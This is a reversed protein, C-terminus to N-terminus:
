ESRPKKITITLIGLLTLGGWVLILNGWGISSAANAFLINSGAAAVYSVFDLFGTAASVMGTDRLGPCYRSYLMTASGNSAMIALVLLILNIMPQRVFYVGVFLLTSTSFLVLITRDMNYHLREYLFISIFATFCIVFTAATFLRASTEASFGLHESIYTPLWFVVSTRVVGTIISILTFRIIRHRILIRLGGGQEKKTAYQRYRVIGRKEFIYFFTFSIVAMLVLLASSIGFVSQWTFAAAMVGAMPTGVFSAFTYGLTCRPTYLPDTNEAVVKTMPGYIMSLCFGTLGYVAIAATPNVAVKSFILNFIGAFLLGGSIMYKAKIKDGLMGNILQGVAYCVLYVSSVTGIYENTFGGGEVMQPTVASLINRAFYVALYSVSCLTGIYIAHKAQQKM